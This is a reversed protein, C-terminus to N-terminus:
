YRERPDHDITMGHNDWREVSHPPNVIGSQGRRRMPGNAAVDILRLIIWPGLIFRSFIVWEINLFADTRRATDPIGGWFLMLGTLGAFVILPIKDAWCLQM